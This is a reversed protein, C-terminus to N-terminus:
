LDMNSNCDSENGGKDPKAFSGVLVLYEFDWM